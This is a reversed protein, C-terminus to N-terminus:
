DIRFYYVVHLAPPFLFFFSLSVYGDDKAANRIVVPVNTRMKPDAEFCRVLAQVAKLGQDYAVFFEM